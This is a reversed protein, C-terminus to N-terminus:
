RVCMAHLDMIYWRSSASEDYSLTYRLWLISQIEGVDRIPGFNSDRGPLWSECVVPIIYCKLVNFCQLSNAPRGVFNITLLFLACEFQKRLMEYFHLAHGM